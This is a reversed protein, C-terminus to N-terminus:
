FSCLEPPRPALERAEAASSRRPRVGQGVGGAGGRRRSPPRIWGDLVLSVVFSLFRSLTYVAYLVLLYGM